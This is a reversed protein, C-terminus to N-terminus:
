GTGTVIVQKGGLVKQMITIPAKKKLVKLSVSYDFVKEEVLSNMNRGILDKKKLGTMKEYASNVRITNAQGDTIYLGDFSSEFVAEIEKYLRNYGKLDSIISEYESIDQFVLLAGM